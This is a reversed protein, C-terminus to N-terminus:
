PQPQTGLALRIRSQLTHLLARLSVFDDPHIEYAHHALDEGEENSKDVIEVAKGASELCEALVKRLDEIEAGDGGREYMTCDSEDNMLICGDFADFWKCTYCREGSESM